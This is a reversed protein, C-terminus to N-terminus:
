RIAVIGLRAARAVAELGSHAGLKELINTVHWRVTTLALVLTEAITDSDLGDAMLQLIERERETLEATAGTRETGDARESTLEVAPILTEGTAVRRVAAIVDAADASTEVVASAGAEVVRLLADHSPETTLVAFATHPSSARIAAAADAGSGDPLRYDLIAVDPHTQAAVSRAEAVTSAYGVCVIEASGQLAAIIGDRVLPHDEVIM